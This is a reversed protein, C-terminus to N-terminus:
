SNKKKRTNNRHGKGMIRFDNKLALDHGSKVTHKFLHTNRDRGNQDKM